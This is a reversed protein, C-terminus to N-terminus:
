GSPVREWGSTTKAVTLAVVAIGLGAWAGLPSVTAGLILLVVEVHLSAVAPLTPLFGHIYMTPAAVVAAVGLRRLGAVGRPLLAWVLAIAVAALYLPYPLYDALPIGNLEPLSRFSEQFAALARPWDLWAGVGVFPLTVLVIGATAAVGFVLPRWRQGRVLWLAPIAAQPKLLTGLVLVGSASQRAVAISLLLAGLIAVNGVWIGEIFPLWLLFIPVWVWRVRLLRLAAVSALTSTIISLTGAVPWPLMALLAFLPLLPPPYLYPYLSPDGVAQTIPTLQYPALGALMREGALVYLELDRLGNGREVGRAIMSLDVIAMSATAAGVLVARGSPRLGDVLAMAAGIATTILVVITGPVLAKGSLGAARLLGPLTLESVQLVLVGIIGIAIAAAIVLRARGRVVLDVVVVAAVSAAAALIWLPLVSLGRALRVPGILLIALVAVSALWPFSRRLLPILSAAVAAGPVDAIKSDSTPM